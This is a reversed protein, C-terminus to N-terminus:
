QFGHNRDLARIFLLMAEEDSSEQLIWGNADALAKVADGVPVDPYHHERMHHLYKILAFSNFYRFFRKSFSHVSATHQQIIAINDYFRIQKLYATMHPDIQLEEQLWNFFGDHGETGLATQIREINVLLPKILQYNEFAITNWGLSQQLLAQMARGTGFPVRFSQRASPYVTTATIMSWAGIEMFKQLFYFDEGAMRTNMGGQELYASRRVAMASGVTYGAYPHGAWHKARELYRLHLEYGAIAKRHLPQLGDLQHEFHISAAHCTRHLAFYGSVVVLYNPEVTCDADLCLIIGHDPLIRAAEDMVIKRAWGVGWKQHPPAEIQASYFHLATEQQHAIWSTTEQMANEHLTRDAPSMRHDANFLILVTVAIRPRVCQMLSELTNHLETEAYAPICVIIEPRDIVAFLPSGPRTTFRNVYQEWRPDSQAPM